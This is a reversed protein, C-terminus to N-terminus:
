YTPLLESGLSIVVPALGLVFFAPLFCLALPISIMVGAREARATSNDVCEARLATAIRECGQALGAGTTSSLVVVGAVDSLGPIEATHAWAREPEVGLSTLASVTSWAEGLATPASSSSHPQHTASVAAVATAVPQGATLCAAFLDIDAAIALLDWPGDRPTKGRTRPSGGGTGGAAAALRGAPNPATLLLLGVLLLTLTM